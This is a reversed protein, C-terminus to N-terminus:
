RGTGALHDANINDLIEQLVDRSQKHLLDSTWGEKFELQEGNRMVLTFRLPVRKTITVSAVEEFPIFTHRKALEPLPMSQLAARMRDNGQETDGGGRILILGNDLILMDNDTKNFKTNGIGGIVDANKATAVAEVVRAQEVAIGLQALRARAQGVTQPDAALKALEEFDAPQGQPGALTARETWSHVWHVQGSRLAALTILPELVQHFRAAAEKRTANDFFGEGLEGARGAEVAYLVDSLGVHRAGLVRAIQRFINDCTDQLSATNSAQAIESWDGTLRREGVNVVAAQLQEGLHDLAPILGGSMRTDEHLAVPPLARVRAVREAIPPHTDWVSTEEAPLTTRLEALEDRRAAAMDHFGRFMDRPLFGAEAAPAVFRQFYFSWAADIVPLEALASAAAHTGAVRVAILDAEREQARSAANDVLLYLRGYGRFPLGLLSDGLHQLAGGIALRGRFAIAGLRTHANSYHGLEHGIVARFQSVTLTVLLPMGIYLHRRGGILGLLRSDESVAANVEPVIRIEDPPRTGAADALRRVEAWLEPARMQDVPVGEPPGPKYFLARKAGVFVAGGFAFIGILALKLAAAGHDLAWLGLVLTLGLLALAFVFFGALMVVSALARLRAIM